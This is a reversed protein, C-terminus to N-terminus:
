KIEEFEIEEVATAQQRSKSQSTSCGGTGCCSIDFIAQVALIGGFVLFIWDQTSSFEVFSYIALAARLIRMAHWNSVLHMTSTKALM